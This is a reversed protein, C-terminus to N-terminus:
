LMYGLLNGVHSPSAFCHFAILLLVVILVLRSLFFSPKVNSIVVQVNALFLKLVKRHQCYIIKQLHNNSNAAM